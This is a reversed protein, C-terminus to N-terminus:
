RSRSGDEDHDEVMAQLSSYKRQIEAYQRPTCILMPLEDDRMGSTVLVRVAGVRPLVSEMVHTSM